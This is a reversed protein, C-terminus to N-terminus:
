SWITAIAPWQARSLPADCMSNNNETYETEAAPALSREGEHIHHHQGAEPGPRLLAVGASAVAPSRM